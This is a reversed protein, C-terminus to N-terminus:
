KKVKVTIDVNPYKIEFMMDPEAFLTYEGLLDIQKTSADSYPQSTQNDSYDGGVKNFVRIDLVNIVGNINNVAELLQGLYINQGMSHKEVDMFDQVKNIVEGAVESQSFQKDIFLDLDFALNIIKGDNILIYDNIMRYDSLYEAINQKITSTSTNSLKGDSDLTLITVQAKNQEEWVATRFPRGFKGPMLDIRAKYDKITVAREQSSFNFRVLNRIEDVSPADNGGFAPFANNVSLSNRVAQNISPNPGNVFMDVQSVTTVINSGVNSETGGGIRYRVFMTTNAQPIEGLSTNNLFDGLSNSLASSVYGSTVANDGFGSGFTVKCFNLDTFEKIFRKPKEVWEGPVVGARDSTRTFDVEFIKNQALAEVEFYRDDSNLFQDLTPVTTYNTGELTIIQEISIVNTEPLTVQFFPIADNDTIIRQFIKTTGNVVIERKTITYNLINGNADENPIVLRNDVGDFSLQSSFDIDEMAEFNQGGGSIRAGQRVVPLYQPDPKDGSAPVTVTFDAITVSPAKNPVKLGFTRALNMLSRREQAFDIQTENFKRDTNYSLMDGVAANLELLMMGVSSDNFDSFLAPYYQRIFSILEARVDAFNRADYNIKKAM